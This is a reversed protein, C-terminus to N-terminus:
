SEVRLGSDTPGLRLRDPLSRKAAAPPCRSAPSRRRNCMLTRGDRYFFGSRRRAGVIAVTVTCRGAHFWRCCPPPSSAPLRRMAPPSMPPLSRKLYKRRGITGYKGDLFQVEQYDKVLIMDEFQAKKNADSSLIIKGAAAMAVVEALERRMDPGCAHVMNFNHTRYTGGHEFQLMVKPHTTASLAELHEQSMGAFFSHEIWTEVVKIMPVGPYLTGGVTVAQPSGERQLDLWFLYKERQGKHLRLVRWKKLEEPSETVVTQLQGTAAAEYHIMGLFDGTEFDCCLLGCGSRLKFLYMRDDQPAPVEGAPAPTGKCPKWAEEDDSGANSM